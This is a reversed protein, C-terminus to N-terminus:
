PWPEKFTININSKDIVRDRKSGEVMIDYVANTRYIGRGRAGFNIRYTSPALSRILIFYGGSVADYIGPKSVYETKDMLLSDEPINLKFLPSEVRYDKLNKVIKSPKTDGKKIITAWVPGGENIDKNVSYRLEEIRKMIKGDYREGIKMMSDIVPFFISTGEFIREGKPGTRDYFMKPDIHRPAGEMGGVPKYNINGRLFLMDGEDNNDPDQSLLWNNWVTIWDGYSMGRFNRDPPVIDIKMFPYLLLTFKVIRWGM